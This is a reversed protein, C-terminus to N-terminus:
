SFLSDSKESTKNPISDTFTKPIKGLLALRWDFRKPTQAADITPEDGKMSGKHLQAHGLVSREDWHDALRDSNVDNGKHNVLPPTRLIGFLTVSLLFLAMRNSEQRKIRELRKIM